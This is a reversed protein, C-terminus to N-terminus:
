RARGVEEALVHALGTTDSGILMFESPSDGLARWELGARTKFHVSDGPLLTRREEGVGVELQGSECLILAEGNPGLDVHRAGQAPLHRVRWTALQAGELGATFDVLLASDGATAPTEQSSRFAVLSPTGSDDILQTPSRDLGTAIKFLVAITPVMQQSEVKQITSAAVGSRSAVQQLTLGAERRWARVRGAIRDLYQEVEM